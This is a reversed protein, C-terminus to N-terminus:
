TYIIQTYVSPISTGSSYTQIVRFYYIEARTLYDSVKSKYLVRRGVYNIPFGTAPLLSFSNEEIEFYWGSKNSSSNITLVIDSFIDDTSVQIIFNYDTVYFFFDEPTFDFVVHELEWYGETYLNETLIGGDINQIMPLLIRSIKLGKYSLYDNVTLLNAGKNNEYPILVDRMYTLMDKSPKYFKSFRTNSNTQRAVDLTPYLLKVELGIDESSVMSNFLSSAENEKEMYYAVAQALEITMEKNLESQDVYDSDKKNDDAEPIRVRAGYPSIVGLPDSYFVVQVLPDGFLAMTWNYYPNSYLYAEGITAGRYLADFFPRPRLFGDEGPDSMAGAVSVYDNLIALPCFNGAVTNKVTFASDLDANYFFIRETDTSKFFSETARDTFWGWYFSDHKLYPFVVDIYPSIFTTSCVKMNLDFLTNIYFDTLDTIYQSQGSNFNSYPDFFFRGNALAQNKMEYAKDIMNKAAEYTPADIRSVILARDADTEDFRKFIARNYLKSNQQRDYGWHIRSVRSTSSIIDHTDEDYFGGPVNYGLIIVWIREGPFAELSPLYGRIPFFVENDFSIGNPLIEIDSCDIGFLQDDDLGHIQQYYIALNYSDIDNNRYIFLVNDKSVSM